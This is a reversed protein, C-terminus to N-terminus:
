QANWEEENNYVRGTALDKVPFENMEWGYNDIAYTREAEERTGDSFLFKGPAVEFARAELRTGIGTLVDRLRQNDKNVLRVIYEALAEDQLESTLNGEVVFLGDGLADKVYNGDTRWPTPAVPHQVEPIPGTLPKSM